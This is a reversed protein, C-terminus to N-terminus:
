CVTIRNEMILPNIKLRKFGDVDEASWGVGINKYIASIFYIYSWRNDSLYVPSMVPPVM